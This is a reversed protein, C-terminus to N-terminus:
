LLFFNLLFLKYIKSEIKLVYYTSRGTLYQSAYEEGHTNLEKLKGETDM